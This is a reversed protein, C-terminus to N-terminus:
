GRAPYSHLGADILRAAREVDKTVARRVSGPGHRRDLHKRLSRSQIPWLGAIAAAAMQPEPDTAHMGARKALIETAAAILEDTADNQYARLAPTTHIMTGLRQFRSCAAAPDPQAALGSTVRHLEDALARRAAAVPTVGPDALGAVLAAITTEGRDLLLSEKTPFYNYVTKESVGCAEAIDAIRVADFGRALFMETATDALQQRTLQKKRARLNAVTGTTGNAM